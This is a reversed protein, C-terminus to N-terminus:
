LHLLYKNSLVFKLSAIYVARPIFCDGTVDTLVCFKTFNVEDFGFLYVSIFTKLILNQM